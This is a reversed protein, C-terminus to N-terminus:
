HSGLGRLTLPGAPREGIFYSDEGDAVAERVGGGANRGGRVEDAEERHEFRCTIRSVNDLCLVERVAREM